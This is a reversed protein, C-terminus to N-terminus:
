DQYPWNSWTLYNPYQHLIESQIAELNPDRITVPEPTIFGADVAAKEDIAGDEYVLKELLTAKSYVSKQCDKQM